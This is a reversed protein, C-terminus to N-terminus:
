KKFIAAQVPFDAYRKIQLYTMKYDEIIWDRYNNNLKFLVENFLTCTVDSLGTLHKDIKILKNQDTEIMSFRKDKKHSYVSKIRKSDVTLANILQHMYTLNENRDYDNVHILQAFDIIRRTSLDNLDLLDISREFSNLRLCKEKFRIFFYNGTQESDKFFEM